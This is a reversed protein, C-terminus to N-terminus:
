SKRMNNISNNVNLNKVLVTEQNFEDTILEAVDFLGNTSIGGLELTLSKENFMKGNDGLYRGSFFNGISIAGIFEDNSKNHKTIVTNIKCNRFWRNKYTKIKKSIWNNVKSNSIKSSDVDTSFVIIGGKYDSLGYQTPRLAENFTFDQRIMIQINGSIFSERNERCEKLFGGIQIPHGSVMTEKGSPHFYKLHLINQKRLQKTLKIM